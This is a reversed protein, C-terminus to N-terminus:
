YGKFPLFSGARFRKAIMGAHDDAFDAGIRISFRLCGAADYSYGGWEPLLSATSILDSRSVAALEAPSRIDYATLTNLIPAWNPFALASDLKFRVMLGRWDEFAFPAAIAGDEWELRIHPVLHDRWDSPAIIKQTERNSLPVRLLGVPLTSEEFVPGPFLPKAVEAIADAKSPSDNIVRLINTYALRPTLIYINGGISFRGGMEGMKLLILNRLRFIPFYVEGKVGIQRWRKRAPPKTKSRDNSPRSAENDAMSLAAKQTPSLSSPGNARLQAISATSLSMLGHALNRTYATDFYSTESPPFKRFCIILRLTLPDVRIRQASFTFIRLERLIQSIDATWPLSKDGEFHAARCGSSYESPRSGYRRRRRRDRRYPRGSWRDSRRGPGKLRSPQAIAPEPMESLPTEEPIVQGRLSNRGSWQFAVVHPPGAKM